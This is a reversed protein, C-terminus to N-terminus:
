KRKEGTHARIHDRLFHKSSLAKPCFQCQFKRDIKTEIVKTSNHTLSHSTLMSELFFVKSCRNCGFSRLENKHLNEVHNILEAKTEFSENCYECDHIRSTHQKKHRIMSVEIAYTKKCISCEFPRENLRSTLM